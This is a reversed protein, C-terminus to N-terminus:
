VEDICAMWSVSVNLTANWNTADGTAIQPRIYTETTQYVSSVATRNGIFTQGTTGGSTTFTAAVRPYTYKYTITSAITNNTGSTAAITVRGTQKQMRSPANLYGAAAAAHLGTGSPFNSINDVIIYQSTATGTVNVTALVQGFSAPKILTIGDINFNIYQTTGNNKFLVFSTLASANEAQITCNKVIFDTAYITDATVASNNGGIDVIGRTNPQPDDACYLDCNELKHYGGIIEGSYVCWDTLGSSIWCNVYKNNYGQFTAGNYITCNEYSSYATNGHFDASWVGSNIDNKTTLDAFRLNRCPVSGTDNGGGTTIAHRRSYYYGGIVKIDQSNAVVLAYDDGGDGKNFLNLNIATSQYCRDFAVCNNGENYGFVNEVVANRCLSILILGADTAGKIKFNRFSVDPSTMKYLSVSAAVYGAYLPNTIAVTSGTISEVCCWEGARYYTRFNSYSSNTPNYIVFVDNVALTPASAFVVTQDDQFVSANLNPLATLSGSVTIANGTTLASFDLVTSDGDGIINLDGTTTVATAFSYTGAPIYVANGTTAAQTIAAQLATSNAAGTASPSAGFDLINVPAGQLMSYSVKTLSM